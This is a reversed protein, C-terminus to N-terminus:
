SKHSIGRVERFSAKLRSLLEKSVNGDLTVAVAEKGDAVDVMDHKRKGTCGVGVQSLRNM